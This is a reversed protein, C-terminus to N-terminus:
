VVKVDFEYKHTESQSSVEIIRIVIFIARQSVMTDILNLNRCLHSLPDNANLPDQRSALTRRVLIFYFTSPLLFPALPWLAPKIM